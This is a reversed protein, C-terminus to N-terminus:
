LKKCLDGCHNRINANHEAETRAYFMKLAGDTDYGSIFYLYDGEAPEAVAVLANKGPNSIPSPPLGACKRSNWPCPITNLYSMDTKSRNPNIQDARYAIIADSGLVMGRKLRLEFVQAVQKQDALPMIGAESQVVSALTIAQHLTFGMAQYKTELNNNQIVKYMEDFTRKLINEVTEGVYFEYTEGYIYGELTADTPKSKLLPHDYTAEFAKTIDEDRYGANQLRERAAALTGGPLFTLNFTKAVVGKNLSKVIQEVDMGKDFDYEGPKLNMESAEFKLYIRFTLASHILGAEELDNAIKAGGTNEAVVFKVTECNDGCNEVSTLSKKYYLYAGGAAIIALLFLTLFIFLIIKGVKSKKKPAPNIGMENNEM